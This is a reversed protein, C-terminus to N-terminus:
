YLSIRTAQRDGAQWAVSTKGQRKWTVVQRDLQLNQEHRDAGKTFSVSCLSMIKWPQQGSSSPWAGGVGSWVSPWGCAHYSLLECWTRGPTNSWESGGVWRDWRDTEHGGGLKESSYHYFFWMSYNPLLSTPPCLMAGGVHDDMGCHVFIDSSFSFFSSFSNSLACTFFATQSIYLFAILFSSSFHGIM